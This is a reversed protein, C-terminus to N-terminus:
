RPHHEALWCTFVRFRTRMNSHTRAPATREIYRDIVKEIAPPGASRQHARPGASIYRAQEAVVGLSHLVVQTTISTRLNRYWERVSGGAVFEPRLTRVDNRGAFANLEARFRDLDGLTSTCWDPSGRHLAIRICAGALTRHAAPQRYGIREAEVDLPTLWQRGLGLLKGSETLLDKFSNALLWPYDLTIRGHMALLSVYLRHGRVVVHRHRAASYPPAHMLRDAVPAAMWAGLDPWQQIFERRAQRRTRSSEYRGKEALVVLATYEEDTFHRLWNSGHAALGPAASM